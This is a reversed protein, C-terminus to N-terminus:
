RGKKQKIAAVLQSLSVDGMDEDTSRLEFRRVKSASPSLLYVQRLRAICSALAGGSEVIVVDPHFRGIDTLLDEKERSILLEIERDNGLESALVECLMEPISAIM